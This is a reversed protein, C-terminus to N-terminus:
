KGLIWKLIIMGDISLDELYIRGEPERVSIKYANEDKGHM